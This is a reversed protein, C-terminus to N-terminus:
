TFWPLCSSLQATKSAPVPQSAIERGTAPKKATTVAVSPALTSGCLNEQLYSKVVPHMLTATPV